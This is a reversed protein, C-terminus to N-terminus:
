ALIATAICKVAFAVSDIDFQEEQGPALRALVNNYGKTFAAHAAIIAIDHGSLDAIGTGVFRKNVQKRGASFAQDITLM